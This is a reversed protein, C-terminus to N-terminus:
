AYKFNGKIWRLIDLKAAALTISMFQEIIKSDTSDVNCIICLWEHKNIKEITLELLQLPEKTNLELFAQYFIGEDYRCQEYKTISLM